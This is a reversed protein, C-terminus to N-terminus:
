TSNDRKKFNTLVGWSAIQESAIIKVLVSIICLTM